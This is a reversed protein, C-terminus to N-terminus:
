IFYVVVDFSLVADGRKIRADFLAQHHLVCEKHGKVWFVFVLSLLRGRRISNVKSWDQSMRGIAWLRQSDWHINVAQAPLPIKRAYLTVGGDKKQEMIQSGLRAKCGYFRPGRTARLCRLEFELTEKVSESLSDGVVQGVCDHVNPSGMLANYGKDCFPITMEKATTVHSIADDKLVLPVKVRRDPM